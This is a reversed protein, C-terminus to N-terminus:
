GVNQAEGSLNLLMLWTRKEGVGIVVAKDHFLAMKM